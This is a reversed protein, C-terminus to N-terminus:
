TSLRISLINVFIYILLPRISTLTSTSFFITNHSTNIPVLGMLIPNNTLIATYIITSNLNNAILTLFVLM